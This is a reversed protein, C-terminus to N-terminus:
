RLSIGVICSRTKWPTPAPSSRPTTSSGPLARTPPSMQQSFRMGSARQRTYSPPGCIQNAGVASSLSPQIAEIRWMAISAPANTTLTGCYMGAVANGASKGNANGSPTSDNPRPPAQM